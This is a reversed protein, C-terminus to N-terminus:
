FLGFFFYGSESLFNFPKFYVSVSEGLWRVVKSVFLM